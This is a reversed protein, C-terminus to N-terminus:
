AMPMPGCDVEKSIFEPDDVRIGEPVGYQTVARNLATVVDYGRCRFGGGICPSVRSVNDVLTLLQLRWGNFFENAMFDMSWASTPGPLTQSARRM